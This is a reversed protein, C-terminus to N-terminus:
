TRNRPDYRPAVIHDVQIVADSTKLIFTKWQPSSHSVEKVELIKESLLHRIEKPSEAFALNADCVRQGKVPPEWLEPRCAINPLYLKTQTGEYVKAFNM